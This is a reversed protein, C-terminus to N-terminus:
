KENPTPHDYHNCGPCEKLHDELFCNDCQEYKACEYSEM